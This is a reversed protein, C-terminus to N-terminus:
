CGHLDIQRDHGDGSQPRPQERGGFALGLLHEGDSPTGDDLVHHLFEGPRPNSPHQEDGAVAFPRDLIEEVDILREDLEEAGAALLLLECRQFELAILHLVGVGPM